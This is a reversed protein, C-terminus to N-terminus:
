LANKYLRFILTISPEESRGCPRLLRQPIQTLSPTSSLPTILRRAPCIKSVTNHFSEPQYALPFCPDALVLFCVMVFDVFWPCFGALEKGWGQRGYLAVELIPTHVLNNWGAEDQKLNAAEKAKAVIQLIEDLTCTDIPSSHQTGTNPASYVDQDFELLSRIHRKRRSVEPQVSGSDAKCLNM